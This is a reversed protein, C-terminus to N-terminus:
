SGSTSTRRTARSCRPDAFVLVMWVPTLVLGILFAKTRVNELYEREFVLWIRSM